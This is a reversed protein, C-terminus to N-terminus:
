PEHLLKNFGNYGSELDFILQRVQSENLEDSAAMESFVNLWEQIKGKGDFESPVLSLRNM